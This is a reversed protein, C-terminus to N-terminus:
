GLKMYLMWFTFTNEALLQAKRFIAIKWSSITRFHVSINIYLILINITTTTTPAANKNRSSSAMLLGALLMPPQPFGSLLERM